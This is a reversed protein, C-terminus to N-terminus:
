RTKTGGFLALEFIKMYCDVNSFGIKKLWKCQEEVLELKNLAKHKPDHYIEKIEEKTKEEGIYKQYDYMNDLFLENFTEELIRTPSSVHELNLFLGNPNLLEFIDKYLRQKENNEIHHISYGSIILDFKKLKSISKFWEHKGFDQVIYESNHGMDKIQAKKIMEESIDVFVGQSAPYLKHIFHGLFGDGCGLDLFSNINPNFKDILRAIIELQENALPFFQRVGNIYKFLKEKRDWYKM